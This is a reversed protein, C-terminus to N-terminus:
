LPLRWAQWTGIVAHEVTETEHVTGSMNERDALTAHYYYDGMYFHVDKGYISGIGDAGLNLYRGDQKVTIGTCDAGPDPDFTVGSFCWAADLNVVARLPLTRCLPAHDSEKWGAPPQACVTVTTEPEQSHNAATFMDNSVVPRQVGKHEGGPLSVISAVNQDAISWDYTASVGYAGEDDARYAVAQVTDCYRHDPANLPVAVEDPESECTAILIANPSEDPEDSGDTGDAADQVPRLNGIEGTAQLGPQSKEPAKRDVAADAVDSSHIPAKLEPQGGNFRAPEENTNAAAEFPEGGCGIETCIISVGIGTALLWRKM